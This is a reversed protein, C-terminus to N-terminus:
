YTGVNTKASRKEYEQYRKVFDVVEERPEFADAPFETPVDVASEQDRAIKRLDAALQQNTYHM